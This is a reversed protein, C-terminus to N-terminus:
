TVSRRKSRGRRGKKGKRLKRRKQQKQKEENSASTPNALRKSDITFKRRNNSRTDKYTKWIIVCEHSLFTRESLSTSDIRSSVPNSRSCVFLRLIAEIESNLEQAVANAM